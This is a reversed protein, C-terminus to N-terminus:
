FAAMIVQMGPRLRVRWARELEANWNPDLERVTEIVSDLWLEYLEPLIGRQSRSHTKGLRELHERMAPDSVDRSVMLLVSDRLVRRQREFDTESFYPAIRPSCNLFKRYFVAGFDGAAECRELSRRVPEDAFTGPVRMPTDGDPERFFDIRFSLPGNIEVRHCEEPEIVFLDPARLLRDEGTKLNLFRLGGGFLHLVGWHGPGLTHEQKLAEPISEETFNPTGGAPNLGTPLKDISMRSGRQRSAKPLVPEACCGCDVPKTRYDAGSRTLWRM